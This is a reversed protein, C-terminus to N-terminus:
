IEDQRKRSSKTREKLNIHIDVIKKLLISPMLIFVVSAMTYFLNRLNFLQPLYNVRIKFQNIFEKKIRNISIGQDDRLVYILFEPINAIAFGNRITRMYLEYEMSTSRTSDYLGTTGFLKRRMMLSPHVAVSFFGFLNKRVDSPDTPFKCKGIIKKDKDIWYGYTGLIYISKNADLYKVQRDFRNLHAIDGADIRAIYTGRAIELGRNLSKTLGMNNENMIIRIRNDKQAYQELIEQTKDTSGDNVIIFEFDTFTQDSISEVTDKLREQENYAGMVVSVSPTKNKM